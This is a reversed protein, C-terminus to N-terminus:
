SFHEEAAIEILRRSNSDRFAVIRFFRGGDVLRHQISLARPARVVIRHTVNAGLRNAAIESRAGVPTVEAWIEAVQDYGRTVGGAGDPTEAPAELILRRNFRAPDSM